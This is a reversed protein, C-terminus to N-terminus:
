FNIYSRLFSPDRVTIWRGRRCFAGLSLVDRFLRSLHWPTIALFQALEWDRIPIRFRYGAECDRPISEALFSLLRCKAADGGLRGAHRLALVGEMGVLRHIQLLLAPDQRLAQIYAGGAAERISTEMATVATAVYREGSIAEEAGAVSGPGRLAIITEVGNMGIRTLKLLGREVLIVSSAVSNQLYLVTDPAHVAGKSGRICDFTSQELQV